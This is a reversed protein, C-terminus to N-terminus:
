GLSERARIVDDMFAAIDRYFDERLADNHILHRSEYEKVTANNACIEAFQRIAENSVIVDNKAMAIFTPVSLRSANNLAYACGNRIGTFMRLSIRNHYLPDNKIGEAKIKDSTIDSASLKKIIAINPSIGGLLRVIAATIPSVEDYLGLWPSELVACAFDAQNRSLLYNVAINGGMSHGFIILPASPAMQKIYAHVSEIDDLFSKYGPIIGQLKKRKATDDSLSGHGRQNLIVAAYGAQSLREALGTYRRAHEGFGHVVLVVAKLQGSELNCAITSISTGDKARVSIDQTQVFLGGASLIL